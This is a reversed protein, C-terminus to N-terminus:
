NVKRRGLIKVGELKQSSEYDKLMILYPSPRLISVAGTSHTHTHTHARM